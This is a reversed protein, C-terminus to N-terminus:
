IINCKYRPIGGGWCVKVREKGELFVVNPYNLLLRQFYLIDVKADVHIYFDVKNEDNLADVLKKLARPDLYTSILYANTKKKRDM